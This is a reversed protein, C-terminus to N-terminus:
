RANHPTKNQLLHLYIDRFHPSHLYAGHLDRFSTPLHIQRLVKNEIVKLLPDLQGQKPLDRINLKKPPKLKCKFWRIAYRM